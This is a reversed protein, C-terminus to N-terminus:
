LRMETSGGPMSSLIEKLRRLARLYRKSAASKEIGLVQATESNSLHEFHRLALVERDLPELSNLAEQLRLKVEARIAAESPGASHGLLQAALAASTTQPLGGPNLSVERGLDRMKTGFHRRHLELLKQSTLFRLWLFFPMTPQQVYESLRSVAELFAEQIVDSADVRGQLRHDLRLAIMRRLRECHRALLAEWSDPDGARAQQLLRNVESANDSTPMAM